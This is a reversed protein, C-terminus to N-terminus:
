FNKNSKVERIFAQMRSVRFTSLNIMEINFILLSAVAVEIELSLTM